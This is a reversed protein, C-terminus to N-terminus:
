DEGKSRRGRKVDGRKRKDNLRRRKASRPKRTKKRTKPKEELKALKEALREFAQDRNRAQSRESTAVVVVGSPPHVVRVGTEVKNRHQGGPGSGRLFTVECVAELSARDKAFPGKPRAARAKAAEARELEARARTQAALPDLKEDEEDEWEAEYGRTRDTM